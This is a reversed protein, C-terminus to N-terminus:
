VGACRSLAGDKRHRRHLQRRRRIYISLGSPYDQANISDMLESIVAEENRAAILVAFRHLKPPKHATRGGALKDSYIYVPLCLM